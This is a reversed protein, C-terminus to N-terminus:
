RFDLIKVQEYNKKFFEVAVNGDIVVLYLEMSNFWIYKDPLIVLLPPLGNIKRKFIYTDSFTNTKCIGQYKQNFTFIEKYSDGILRLGLIIDEHNSSNLFEKIQESTMYKETEM